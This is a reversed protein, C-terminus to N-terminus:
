KERYLGDLKNLSHKYFNHCRKISDVEVYEQRAHWNAGKPGFVVTPMRRAFLNYDGVSRGYGTGARFFRRHESILLNVLPTRKTIYPQLFPTPRKMWRVEVREQLGYERILNRFDSMVSSKSEGPVVHRDVRVFCSSPVSLSDGGGEIKLACISGKGLVPHKKLKLEKLRRTFEAADEIANAAKDPRSGHGGETKFEVELVYRGRTGLMLREDSPEPILCLDAKLNKNKLLTYAGLSNGEEDVTATFILNLNRLESKRFIDMIIALGAKMDATGLGYIRNGKKKPILGGKWLNVTDMHGNLLVTPYDDDIIKKAVVDPGFGKVTQLDADVLYDAIFEAIRKEGGFPSPIRVLRKALSVVDSTIV